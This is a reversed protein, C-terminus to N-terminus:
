STNPHFITSIRDHSIIFDMMTAINPEKDKIISLYVTPFELVILIQGIKALSPDDQLDLPMRFEFFRFVIKYVNEYIKPTNHHYRYKWCCSLLTHFVFLLSDLQVVTYFVHHGRQLFKQEHHPSIYVSARLELSNKSFSCLYTEPM